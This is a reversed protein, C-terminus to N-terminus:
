LRTVALEARYFSFYQLCGHLGQDSAGAKWGHGDPNIYNNSLPFKTRGLASSHHRHPLSSPQRPLAAGTSTTLVNKGKGRGRRQRDQELRLPTAQPDSELGGQINGFALSLCFLQSTM